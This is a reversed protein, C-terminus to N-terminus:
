THTHIHRYFVYVDTDLGNQIRTYTSSLYFLSLTSRKKYILPLLLVPPVLVYADVVVVDIFCVFVHSYLQFRIYTFSSSLVSINLPQIHDSHLICERSHNHLITHPFLPSFILPTQRDLILTSVINLTVTSPQHNCFYM